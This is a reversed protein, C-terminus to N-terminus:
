NSGDMVAQHLGPLVDHRRPHCAYRDLALPDILGARYDDHLARIEQQEILILTLSGLTRGAASRTSPMPRSPHRRTRGPQDAGDLLGGDLDGDALGQRAFPQCFAASM